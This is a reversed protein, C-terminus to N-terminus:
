PSRTFTLVFSVPVSGGISPLGAIERLAELGDGLNFTAASVIVPRLSAVVFRDAALKTVLVDVNFAATVGRMNLMIQQSAVSSSPAPMALYKAIDVNAALSARPFTQTEFLLERMREDRIPILTDASALEIAVRAEGAENVSGSLQSFRHVESVDVAKTSVFSVQSQANDLQWPGTAEQACAGIVGCIGVVMWKVAAQM